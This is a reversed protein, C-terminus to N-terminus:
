PFLYFYIYIYIHVSMCMVDLVIPGAGAPVAALQGSAVALEEGGPAGTVYTHIYIYILVAYIYIYIFIHTYM